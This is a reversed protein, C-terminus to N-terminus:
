YIVLRDYMSLLTKGKQCIAAVRGQLKVERQLAPNPLRTDLYSLKVDITDLCFALKAHVSSLHVVHRDYIYGWFYRCNRYQM